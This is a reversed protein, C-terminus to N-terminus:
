RLPAAAFAVSFPKCWIVVTNFQSLDTGPPITYEQAGSTSALTGLFLIPTDTVTSSFSVYDLSLDNAGSLIVFLDPGPQVNFDESFRVANAAADLVFSGRVPVEMRVFSHAAAPATPSEGQSDGVTPQPSPAVQAPETPASASAPAQTPQEQTHPKSQTSVAPAALTPEAPALVPATLPPRGCAVLLVGISILMLRRISEM